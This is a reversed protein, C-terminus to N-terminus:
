AFEVKYKGAYKENFAQVISYTVNEQAEPNAVHIGFKIVTEGDASASYALLSCIMIVALFAAMLKKAM